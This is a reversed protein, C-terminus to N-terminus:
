AVQLTRYSTKKTYEDYKDGLTAKLKASDLNTRTASKWTIRHTGAVGAEHEQMMMKLQNALHDKQKSLDKITDDLMLYQEAISGAEDPLLVEDKVSQAFEANLYRTTAESGDVEPMTMTMVCRWFAAECSILWNIYDDNREVMYWYFKNGGVLCAIYAKNLGTVAMYHQLQSYYHPPLEGDAWRKNNWEITSKAEFIAKSGDPETVIGDIDALMFPHTESQFICNRVEVKLGTVRQFEKRIIPELLHGFHTFNNEVEEIPIQGTKDKWLEIVSRYPSLGLIIGTDSGCVGMRRYKLWTLTDMGKTNVLRKM